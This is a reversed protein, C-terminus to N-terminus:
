SDIQSHVQFTEPYNCIFHTALAKYKKVILSMFMYTYVYMCVYVYIYVYM